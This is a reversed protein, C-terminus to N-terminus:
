SVTSQVRLLSGSSAAPKPPLLGGYKVARPSLKSGHILLELEDEDEQGNGTGHLDTIRARSATARCQYCPATSAFVTGETTQFSEDVATAIKSSVQVISLQKALVNRVHQLRLSPSDTSLLVISYTLGKGRLQFRSLHPYCNRVLGM